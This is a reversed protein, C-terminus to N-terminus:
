GGEGERVMRDAARDLLRRWQRSGSSWITRGIGYGTAAAATIIGAMTGGSLPEFVGILVGAVGLSFLGPLYHSLFATLSRDTTLHLLTREEEPVMRISVVDPGKKGKWEVGGLVEHSEGEVGMEERVVELLRAMESPTLGKLITRRGRVRVPGGFVKAAGSWEEVSLSDVAQVVKAPDVGVERAIELVQTLTM